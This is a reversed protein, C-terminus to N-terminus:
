PVPIVPGLDSNTWEETAVSGVNIDTGQVTVTITKYEGRTPQYNATPISTTMEKGDVTIVITTAGAPICPVLLIDSGWSVTGTGPMVISNSQSITTGIVGMNTSYTGTSIDLTASQLLNHLEVKQVVGSGPYNERQFKFTVKAYARIMNFTTSKNTSSGDVTRSTAFCIDNSNDNALVQSTVTFNLSNLPAQWPHYACVSATVGGLFVANGPGGSPIWAPMGYDYRRNDIADYGNGELRFVGISGSTLPTATRTTAEANVTASEVTLPVTAIVPPKVPEIGPTEGATCGALLLSVPILLTFITRMQKRKM